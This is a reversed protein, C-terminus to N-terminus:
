FNLFFQCIMLKFVKKGKLIQSLRNLLKRKDENKQDNIDNSYDVSIDLYAICFDTYTKYKSLILEKLYSGIEENTKLEFM